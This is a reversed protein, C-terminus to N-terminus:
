NLGSRNRGSLLQPWFLFGRDTEKKLETILVGINRVSKVSM